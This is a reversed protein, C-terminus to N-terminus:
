FNVWSHNIIAAVWGPPWLLGWLLMGCVSLDGKCWHEDSWWLFSVPCLRGAHCRESVLVVAASTETELFCRSSGLLRPSKHNWTIGQSFLPTQTQIWFSFEPIIFWLQTANKPSWKRVCPWTPKSKKKERFFQMKHKSTDISCFNFLAFPQLM